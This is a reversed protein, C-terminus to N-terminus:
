IVCVGVYRHEPNMRARGFSEALCISRNGPLALNGTIVVGLGVHQQGHLFPKLLLADAPPKHNNVIGVVCFDEKALLRLSRGCTAKFLVQPNINRFTGM